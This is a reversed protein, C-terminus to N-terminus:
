SAIGLVQDLELVLKEPNLKELYKSFGADLGKEVDSKRFRVTLAILPIKDLRADKKIKQAMKFGDMIPMEIDSLVLSINNVNEELVQYGEEGNVATIVRYGAEHLLNSVHRRYFADDEVLLVQKLNRNQSGIKEQRQAVGSGQPDFSDIIKFADVLVIVGEDFVLNGLIGPRDRLDTSIHSGTNIIDMIDNVELGFLKNSRQIVITSCKEDIENVDLTQKQETGPIKLYDSISYLPLISDRYRVVRQGGSYEINSHKFEELRNVICLPVAYRGPAGVNILLYDANDERASEEKQVSQNKQEDNELDAFIGVRNALGIVDITLAVSGDGLVTAGSYVSLDKLFQMLPKVVIDASDEIEDVVLGFTGMDAKLVIINESIKLSKEVDLDLIENLSVLPLLQGRLRYVPKGQLIEIGKNKILGSEGEETELRVLEVLKVQPIAFRQQGSRVILAPIIALTLPIKLRFITGKGETSSLEVMGGIREINSRVVDMGVGRGSINSVKVATSFGPAFIFKFLDRDSMKELKESTALGKEQVKKAINERSLGKGNDEIEVIVQGGEHYSSIKVTGERPKGAAEREDPMEVGHDVSNRVIHMLPDKVAELLTKDLETETGVLNLNVKKDLDKALDRVVRHFKTLITGIPQMRTKMVEEQLEGTVINLRQNLAGLEANEQANGFQLHQNRILVLEGVLNMLKDLIGVNVRITEAQNVLKEDKSASAEMRGDKQELQKVDKRPSKTEQLNSKIMQKAETSVQRQSVRVETEEHKTKDEKILNNENFTKAPTPSEAVKKDQFNDESKKSLPLKSPASEEQKNTIKSTITENLSIINNDIKLELEGGFDSMAIIKPIVILLRKSFDGEKKNVKIGDLIERLLDMGELIADYVDNKLEYQGSRIPDLCSEIAHAIQGMQGCGYLFSSGKISHIDRYIEVILETVPEGKEIKVLNLAIRELMEVSEVVFEGLAEDLNM